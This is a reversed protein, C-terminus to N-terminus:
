DERDPPRHVSDAPWGGQWWDLLRVRSAGSRAKSVGSVQAGTSAAVAPHITGSCWENAHGAEILTGCCLPSRTLSLHVVGPDWPDRIQSRNRNYRAAARFSGERVHINPEATATRERRARSVVSMATISGLIRVLRSADIPHSPAQTAVSQSTLSGPAHRDPSGSVSSAPGARCREGLRCVLPRDFPLVPNLRRVPSEQALKHFRPTCPPLKPIGVKPFLMPDSM